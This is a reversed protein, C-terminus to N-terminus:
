KIIVQYFITGSEGAPVLAKKWRIWRVNSKVAGGPPGATYDASGWSQDPGANTSYAESWGTATGMYNTFYVTIGPLQDYILMNIADGTGSNSYTIIYTVTAGPIPTSVPVGGLMVNSISKSISLIPIGQTLSIINTAYQDAFNDGSISVENTVVPVPLNTGIGGTLYNVSIYPKGSGANASYILQQDAIGDATTHDPRLRIQFWNSSSDKTWSKANTFASAIQSTSDINEWGVTADYNAYDSEIAANNYDAGEITNGFDVHDVRVPQFNGQAGDIQYNNLHLTAATVNAGAPISSLNFGIVSRIEDNSGPASAQYTVKLYPIETM